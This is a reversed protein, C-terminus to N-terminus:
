AFISTPHAVAATATHTSRPLVRPVLSWAVVSMCAELKSFSHGLTEIAPLGVACYVGTVNFCM